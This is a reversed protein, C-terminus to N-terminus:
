ASIRNGPCIRWGYAVVETKELTWCSRMLASGRPSTRAEAIKSMTHPNQSLNHMSQLDGQGAVEPMQWCDVESGTNAAWASAARPFDSTQSQIM